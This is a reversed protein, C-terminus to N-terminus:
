AASDDALEGCDPDCTLVLGLVPSEIQQGIEM